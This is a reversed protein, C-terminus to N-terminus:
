STRRTGAGWGVDVTIYKDPDTPHPRSEISREPASWPLLPHSFAKAEQHARLIICATATSAVCRKWTLEYEAHVPDPENSALAKSIHEEMEAVSNTFTWLQGLVGHAARAHQDFGCDYARIELAVDGGGRSRWLVRFLPDDILLLPALSDVRTGLARAAHAAVDGAFKNYDFSM